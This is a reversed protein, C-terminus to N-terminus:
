GSQILFLTFLVLNISFFISALVFFLDTSEKTRIRNRESVYFPFAVIQLLLMFVGWGLPSLSTIRKKIRVKKVGIIMADVFLFIAAVIQILSGSPSLFFMVISAIGMIMIQADQSQLGIEVPKDEGTDNKHCSTHM